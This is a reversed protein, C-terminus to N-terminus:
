HYSKFFVQIIIQKAVVVIEDDLKMHPLIAKSPDIKNSDVRVIGQSQIVIYDIIGILQDIM